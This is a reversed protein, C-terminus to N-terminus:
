LHIRYVELNRYRKNAQLFDFYHRYLNGLYKMPEYLDMYDGPKKGPEARLNKIIYHNIGPSHDGDSCILYKNDGISLNTDRMGCSSLIQIDLENKREYYLRGSDACIEIGINLGKWQFTNEISYNRGVLRYRENGFFSTGGDAKKITSFIVKGRYFVPMVNYMNKSKTSIVATGPMILTDSQKSIGKIYDLLKAFKKYNLPKEDVNNNMLGWEPGIILDLGLTKSKELVALTKELSSYSPNNTNINLIGVDLIKGM